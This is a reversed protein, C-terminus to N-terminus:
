CGGGSVSTEALGPVTGPAKYVCRQGNGGPCQRRQLFSSVSSQPAPRTRVVSCGSRPVELPVEWLQPGSAWPCGPIVVSGIPHDGAQWLCHHLLPPWNTGQPWPVSGLPLGRAALGMGSPGLGQAGHRGASHGVWAAWVAWAGLAESGEQPGAPM